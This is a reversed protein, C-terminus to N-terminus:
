AVPEDGKLLEAVPAVAAVFALVTAAPDERFDDDINGVKSVEGGFAVLAPLLIALDKDMQFGDDLASKIKLGLKVSASVFDYSDASVTLTVQKKAM